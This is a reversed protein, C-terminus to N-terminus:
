VVVYETLHLGAAGFRVWMNDMMMTSVMSPLHTPPNVPAFHMSLFDNYLPSKVLTRVVVPIRTINKKAIVNHAGNPPWRMAGIVHETTFAAEAAWAVQVSADILTKAFAM